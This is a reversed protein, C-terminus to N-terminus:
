CARAQRRYLMADWAHAGQHLQQLQLWVVQPPGSLPQGAQLTHCGSGAVQQAAQDLQQPGAQPGQGEVDQAPQLAVQAGDSGVGLGLSGSGAFHSKRPPASGRPIERGGCIVPAAPFSGCMANTVILAALAQQSRGSHPWAHCSCAM